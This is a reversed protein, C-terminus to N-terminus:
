FAFKFGVYYSNNYVVKGSVTDYNTNINRYGVTVRGNKILEIDYSIRYELFDKADNFSLASPAFYLSGSLYMPVLKKAPIVYEFELGLPLSSFNKTGLSTYNLKVGMGFSMGMDGMPRKMLFSLEYYPDLSTPSGGTELQSNEKQGNLFRGGIFMTDPEVKDNFQGIDFKAGIELDRDNINIQATHLAFASVATATILITKKLM